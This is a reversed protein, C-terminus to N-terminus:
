LNKRDGVVRYISRCESDRYNIPWSAHSEGRERIGLIAKVQYRTFSELLPGNLSPFDKVWPM